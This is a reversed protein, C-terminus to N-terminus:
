VARFIVFGVSNRSETFLSDKVIPGFNLNFNLHRLKIFLSSTVRSIWVTLNTYSEIGNALATQIRM